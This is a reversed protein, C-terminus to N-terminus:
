KLAHSAIYFQQIEVLTPLDKLIRGSSKLLQRNRQYNSKLNSIQQMHELLDWFAKQEETSHVQSNLSFFEM